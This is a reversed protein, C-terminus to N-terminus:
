IADSIQKTKESDRALGNWKERMLLSPVIGIVDILAIILIAIRFGNLFQTKALALDAIQSTAGQLLSSFNAYSIGFTFFLVILGFSATFGVYWMTQRFGSAVGRRQAPVSAMIAKTNPPTFIGNGIGSLVLAAAILFYSSNSGLSYMVAFGLTILALGAASLIGADYRDSWKGALIAFVFFSAEIPIIALGAELPPYGLEIQLYFSVALGLGAWALSNLLQALNAYAFTKIKFLALDLLPDSVSSEIKVFVVTLILGVILFPLGQAYGSPGYTVLTLGVLVLILAISFITFGLWDMRKSRDKTGVEKLKIFSLATGVIGIPINVYFLGRWDVFSLIIGSLTLGVVSGIRWATQSLGLIFGLEEKPSGDTLIAVSNTLLFASGAGQVVRFAILEFSNSSIACLASGITFIVFGWNYLRVRGFMDTIRGIFLLGVTGALLYGQTIWIAEEPGAHLQHAVTPLGIILIRSDISSMLIGIDTVILAIWKYQM